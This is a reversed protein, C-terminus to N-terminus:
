PKAQAGTQFFNRTGVTNVLQWLQRHATFHVMLESTCLYASVMALFVPADEYRGMFRHDM